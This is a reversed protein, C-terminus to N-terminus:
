CLPLLACTRSKLGHICRQLFNADLFSTRSTVYQGGPGYTTGQSALLVTGGNNTAAVGNQDVFGGTPSTSRAMMIKYEAGTAPKSRLTLM